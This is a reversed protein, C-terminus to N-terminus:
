PTAEDVASPSEQELCPPAALPAFRGRRLPSPANGALSFRGVPTMSLVSGSPLVCVRYTNLWPSADTCSAPWCRCGPRSALSANSRCPPPSQRRRRACRPSPQRPPLRGARDPEPAAPTAHPLESLPSEADAVENLAARSRSATALIPVPKRSTALPGPTPRPKVASMVGKASAVAPRKAPPAPAVSQEVKIVPPPLTAVEIKPLIPSIPPLDSVASKMQASPTGSMELQWTAGAGISIGVSAGLLLALRPMRPASLAHRLAALARARRLTLPTAQSTCDSGEPRQIHMSYELGKPLLRRRASVMTAACLQALVAPEIPLTSDPDIALPVASVGSPALDYTLTPFDSISQPRRSSSHDLEPLKTM